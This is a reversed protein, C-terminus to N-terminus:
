GTQFKFSVYMRTVAAKRNIPFKLVYINYDKEQGLFGNYVDLSCTVARFGIALRANRGDRFLAVSKAKKVRGQNVSLIAESICWTMYKEKMNGCTAEGKQIRDCHADFAQEPPANISVDKTGAVFCAVAKQHFRSREHKSFNSSQMAGLTTVEYNPFAGVKV